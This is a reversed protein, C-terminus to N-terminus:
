FKYWGIFSYNISFFLGFSVIFGILGFLLFDIPSQFDRNFIKSDLIAFFNILNIIPWFIFAFFIFLISFFLLTEHGVFLQTLSSYEPSWLSPIYGLHNYVRALYTGYVFSFFWFNLVFFRNIKKYVRWSKTEPKGIFPLYDLIEEEM